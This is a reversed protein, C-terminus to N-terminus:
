NRHWFRGIITIFENRFITGTLTYLYFSTSHAFCTMTGVLQLALNEQAIRLTDKVENATFTAYLRYISFPLICIIVVLVQIALMRLLQTDTRRAVQNTEPLRPVVQRGPRINNLTLLGFLLMVFPPFLAYWVMYWFGLFTRYIGIQANCIPVINGYQDRINAIEFYAIMHSYLLPVAISLIGITLKATKLSSLRRISTNKSSHLFRDVTAAAILWCSITRAVYFSFTQLKCCGLNYNASDIGFNYALIRLPISVLMVYFNYFTSSLFYLACPQQRLAPRTFVLVNFTLGFAGLAVSVFSLAISSVSAATNIQNLLADYSSM